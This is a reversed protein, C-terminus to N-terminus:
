ATPDSNTRDTKGAEPTQRPPSHGATEPPVPLSGCGTSQLFRTTKMGHKSRHLHITKVTFKRKNLAAPRNRRQAPLCITQNKFRRPQSDRDVADCSQNVFILLVPLPVRCRAGKTQAYEAIGAVGPSHRDRFKAIVDSRKREKIFYRAAAKRAEVM